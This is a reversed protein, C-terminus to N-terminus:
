SLPPRAALVTVFRDHASVWRALDSDMWNLLKTADRHRDSLKAGIEEWNSGIIPEHHAIRNRLKVLLDVRRHLEALAEREKGALLMHPFAIPIRKAWFAGAYAPKCLERWLNFDSAAIIDPLSPVKKVRGEAKELEHQVEPHNYRFRAVRHWAAGYADALAAAIKNRLCVEVQSLTTTLAAGIEQNWAYLELALETNGKARTLYKTLRERSLVDAVREPRYPEPGSDAQPEPPRSMYQKRAGQPDERDPPKYGGPLNRSSVLDRQPAAKSRSKQM